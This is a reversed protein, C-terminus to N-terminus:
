IPRCARPPGYSVGLSEYRYASGSEGRCPFPDRHLCLELVHATTGGLRNTFKTVPDEGDTAIIHTNNKHYGRYGLCERPLCNTTTFM